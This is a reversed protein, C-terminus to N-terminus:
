ARAAHTQHVDVADSAALMSVLASVTVSPGPTCLLQAEAAADLCGGGGSCRMHRVGQAARVCSIAAAGSCCWEGGSSGGGGGSGNDLRTSKNVRSVELLSGGEYMWRAGEKVFRSRETFDVQTVQGRVPRESLELSATFTLYAVNVGAKREPGIDLGLFRYDDCFELIEAVWAGQDGKWESGGRATTKMIFLPLRYAFAAFRARLLETPQLADDYTLGSGCICLAANIDKPMRDRPLQSKPPPKRSWPARFIDGLKIKDREREGRGAAGGKTGGLEGLLPDFRSDDTPAM